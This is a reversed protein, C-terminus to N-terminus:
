LVARRRSFEEAGEKSTPYNNNICAMCMSELGIAQQLDKEELYIVQKAGIWQAVEGEDRNNASLESAHPFDIGYYCPYRIPPCTIAITVEKAGYKKLLDIIKKATTGRVLSDDVLLISKGEIESIVPTFKLGVAMERASKSGLIFSRQVYRNKILGERYPLKLKEALAISATRSTDPVPCVIDPAVVGNDMLKKVKTALVKGLELRATYISHNMIISEAGAFYVWEFMCPTSKEKPTIIKSHLQGKEDIFVLEGPALDRMFKYGLFDFAKTESSLCYEYTGEGLPSERRGLVMPRIGKRDRLGFLGKGAMIGCLAYGGQAHQLIARAGQVMKEFTISSSKGGGNINQCWLYLLLELDNDSIFNIGWERKLEQRLSHYNILNGNHVMGVGFPFGVVMPQLDKEQDKGVTAYRTHGIASNGKLLAMKERSFVSGVPGLDKQQSFGEGEGDGYSLIGAGDQGRHQLVLLGGLCDEAAWTSSHHISSPGTVGIIGCM